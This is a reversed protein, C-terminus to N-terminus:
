EKRRLLALGGLALLGITAPEPIAAAPAQFGFNEALIALDTANVVGDTNVNGASWGGTQGFAAAMLALDTANLYGDLNADGRKTGVGSEGGPRSWEVRNEVLYILDDEDTDGDGDLDFAVDGLNAILTEIDDVDVDGDSDVDVDPIEMIRLSYGIWAQSPYYSNSYGQWGAFYAPYNFAGGWLRRFQGNHIGETWEWCNGGMDYTGYPGVSNEHEGVETRFYPAGITPDDPNYNFATVNNGPDPDVSDNSPTTHSQASYNWYNDTVGDNMHYAAKRWEDNTPIVYRATSQRTVAILEPDTVAGNLYYSGAETTTLDPAGAPRGNTLWNVFRAGDAWSVHTAPRDEWDAAVSYTYSGDAGSRQINCGWSGDTPDSMGAEYLGYPDTAAVANLFETYQGTTLEFKSVNYTYSVAGGGPNGVTMFPMDMTTAFDITVDGSLDARTGAQSAAACVAVAALMIFARKM